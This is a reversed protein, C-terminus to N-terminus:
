STSQNSKLVNYDSLIFRRSAAYAFITWGLKLNLLQGSLVLGFIPVIFIFPVIDKYERYYRFAALFVKGIFTFYLFLGLIGSYALVEVIVNHPSLFQGFKEFSYKFYGTTGVGVILNNEILPMISSWIEDRGSLHGEETTKLLREALVESQLAIKLLVTAAILGITLSFLKLIVGRTQHLIFSFFLGLFITIFALRSGTNIALIILPIYAAVLVLRRLQFIRSKNKFIIHTLILTSVGMRMGIVNENDGFISIRGYDLSVEVGIGLFFCISLVLSGAFFFYFSKELVGPNLREHNILLVFLFLNQLISFQFVDQSRFNVNLFNMVVLLVYFVMILNVTIKINQPVKLFYQAKPLISITYIFGTLKSISFYGGTYFPDWIEFNLSFIFIFLFVDKANLKM